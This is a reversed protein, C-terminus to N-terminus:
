ISLNYETIMVFNFSFIISICIPFHEIISSTYTIMGIFFLGTCFPFYLLNKLQMLKIKIFLSYFIGINTQELLLLLM